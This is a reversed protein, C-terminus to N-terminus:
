EHVTQLVWRAYGEVTEQGHEEREPYRRWDGSSIAALAASLEVGTTVLRDLAAGAERYEAASLFGRFAAWVVDEDSRQQQDSM